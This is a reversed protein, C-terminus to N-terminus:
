DCYVYDMISKRDPLSSRQAFDVAGDVEEQVKTKIKNIKDRNLIKSTVLYQEFRPIPDYKKVEEIERRTRTESDLMAHRELRSTRAEILTPGEGGRARKVAKDVTQYVALVDNGDVSCGPMGYSIARDSINEIPLSCSSPVSIAYHNNECIFVVPLKWLSALNLSEHFTGQNSAGDGFFSLTVRKIGKYQSSFATGLSIPLGGGVIGSATLVGREPAALHMSGGRGRCYGNERGLLEAMMRKIDAGKAICHGHGRHTSIIYDQCQISSCAGVAIAEEGSYSHLAGRILGQAYLEKAKNEFLRITYMKTFMEILKETTATM